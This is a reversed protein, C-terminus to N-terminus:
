KFLDKLGKTAEDVVKGVPATLKNKLAANSGASIIRNLVQEAVEEATAPKSKTGVDTLTIDPMDIPQSGLGAIAPVLQANLIKLKKIVLKPAPVVPEGASKGSAKMNKRMADFNTGGSGIAYTVQMGEVVVEDLVVLSQSVEGVKFAISETKLLLDNGYGKPNDVTLRGMTAKKDTLSFQLSTVHVPTGLAETGAREILAKVAGGLYLYAGGGLLALVIVLGLFKKM